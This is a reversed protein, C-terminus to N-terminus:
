VLGPGFYGGPALRPVMTGVPALPPGPPKGTRWPGRPVTPSRSGLGTRAPRRGTASCPPLSATPRRSHRAGGGQTPRGQYAREGQGAQGTKPPRVSLGSLRPPPAPCAPSPPSVGCCVGCRLRRRVLRNRYMRPIRPIKGLWYFPFLLVRYFVPPAVTARRSRLTVFRCCACASVCPQPLPPFMGRMGGMGRLGGGGSPAMTGPFPESACARIQVPGRPPEPVRPM